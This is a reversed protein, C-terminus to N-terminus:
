LIEKNEFHVRELVNVSFASLKGMVTNEEGDFLIDFVPL